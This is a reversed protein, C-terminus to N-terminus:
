RHGEGFGQVEQGKTAGGRYLGLSALSYGACAGAAYWFQPPSSHVKRKQAFKERRAAKEADEGREEEGGSDDSGFSLSEPALASCACMCAHQSAWECASEVCVRVCSHACVARPICEHEHTQGKCLRAFSVHGRLAAAMNYHAARNAAFAAKRAM